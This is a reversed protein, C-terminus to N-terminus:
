PIVNEVLAMASERLTGVPEGSSPDKEIVGGEPDPTESTIGAVQLAMSNAWGSHGDIGSVYVPRDPIIKDLLAKDPKGEPPFLSLLWGAGVVWGEKSSEACGLLKNLIAEVSRLEHLPCETIELGSYIIHTHADHFGPLIMGGDFTMVKTNDGKHQEVDTTSGVALIKGDKIAVAEAWTQKPNLTYIKAGTLITDAHSTQVPSEIVTDVSSKEDSCSTLLAFAFFCSLSITCTKISIKNM